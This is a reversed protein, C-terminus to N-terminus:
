MVGGPPDGVFELFGAPENVDEASLQLVANFCAFFRDDRQGFVQNGDISREGVNNGLHRAVRGVNELLNGVRQAVREGPQLELFHQPLLYAANYFRQLHESLVAAVQGFQELGSRRRRAHLASIFM